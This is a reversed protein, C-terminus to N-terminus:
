ATVESLLRNWDAVFREVGFRALASRRGAAGASRAYDPEHLYTRVATRLEEIRTSVVGADGPVADPAATTALAIVPLGLMMAEILSLGLSTWRVPHLYMRRRPLENHLVSQPPDDFEGLSAQSIGLARALGEVGMGFVDVGAIECFQPLLDTGTVRGRRIPENVAVGIRALEGTYRYGPDVVGHEIV